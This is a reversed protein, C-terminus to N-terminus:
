RRTGQGEGAGPSGGGGVHGCLAPGRGAGPMPPDAGEHLHAILQLSCLSDTLIHDAGTTQGLQLAALECHTSSRPEPVRVLREMPLDQRWMAGGGMRDAAQLSGDTYAVKSSPADVQPVMHITGKFEPEPSVVPWAVALISEHNVQATWGVDALASALAGQATWAGSTCAVTRHVTAALGTHNGMLQLWKLQCSRVELMPDRVATGGLPAGHVVEEAWWCCLNLPARSVVAKRGAVALRVLQSKKYDRLECGYVAQPLVAARWIQSLVASPLPLGQLREASTEANAIRKAM